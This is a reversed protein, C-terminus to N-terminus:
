RAPMQGIQFHHVTPSQLSSPQPARLRIKQLRRFQLLCLHVPRFIFFRRLHLPLGAFLFQTSAFLSAPNILRFGLGFKILPQHSAPAGVRMRNVLVPRYNWPSSIHGVHMLVNRSVHLPSFVVLEWSVRLSSLQGPHQLKCVPSEVM